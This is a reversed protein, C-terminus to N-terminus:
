RALPPLFNQLTQHVLKAQAYWALKHGLCRLILMLQDFDLKNLDFIERVPALNSLLAANHGESFDLGVHTLFYRVEISNQGERGTGVNFSGISGELTLNLASEKKLKFRM